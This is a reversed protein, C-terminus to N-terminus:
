PTAVEGVAGALEMELRVTAEALSWRNVVVERARRRMLATQTPDDILRLLATALQDPDDHPVLFGNVGDEVTERVGGEAIAVVPLGCSNAELPAYGFPELRPTYLMAFSERLVAILEEDSVKERFSFDVGLDRALNEVTRRYVPDNGNGVWVFNPRKAAPVRALARVARDAGKPHHLFGLSVVQNIRPADGWPFQDADVGLYCVRSDLGYARVLSERSFLSNVLIRRYARANRVEERVQVRRARTAFEDKFRTKWSAPTPLAAWPLAPLAEYLYRFPEQLYLVAPLPAYRAIPSVAFQLCPNAFIVQFDGAVM